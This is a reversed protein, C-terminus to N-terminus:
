FYLIFHITTLLRNTISELIINKLTVIYIPVSM